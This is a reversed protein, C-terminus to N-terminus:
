DSTPSEPYIKQTLIICFDCGTWCVKWDINVLKDAIDGCYYNDFPLTILPDQSSDFKICGDETAFKAEWMSYCCYETETWTIYIYQTVDEQTFSVYGNQPEYGGSVYLDIYWSSIDSDKICLPLETWDLAPFYYGDAKIEGQATPVGFICGGKGVSVDIDKEVLNTESNNFYGGSLPLIKDQSYNEGVGFVLAFGVLIFLVTIVLIGVIIIQSRKNGYDIEM